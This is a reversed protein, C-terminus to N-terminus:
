GGEADEPRAQPESAYFAVTSCLSVVTILHEWSYV